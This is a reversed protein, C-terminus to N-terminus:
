IRLIPDSYKPSRVIQPGVFVHNNKGCTHHMVDINYLFIEGERKLLDFFIMGNPLLM